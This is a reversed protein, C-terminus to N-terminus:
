LAMGQIGRLALFCRGAKTVHRSVYQVCLGSQLHAECMPGITAIPELLVLSQLTKLVCVVSANSACHDVLVGGGM